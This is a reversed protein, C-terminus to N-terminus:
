YPPTFKGESPFESSNETNGYSSSHNNLNESEEKLEEMHNQQNVKTYTNDNEQIKEMNKNYAKTQQAFIGISQDSEAREYRSAGTIDNETTQDEAMKQSKGPKSCGCETSMSKEKENNM